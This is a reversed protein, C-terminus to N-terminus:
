LCRRAVRKARGKEKAAATETGTETDQARVTDTFVALMPAAVLGSRASPHPTPM